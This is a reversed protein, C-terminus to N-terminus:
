SLICVCGRVGVLGIEQRFIFVVQMRESRLSGMRDIGILNRSLAVEIGLSHM